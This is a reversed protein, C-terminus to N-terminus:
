AIVQGTDVTSLRVGLSVGGLTVTWVIGRSFHPLLPYLQLYLQLLWSGGVCLLWGGKWKARKLANITNSCVKTNLFNQQIGRHEGKKFLSILLFLKL